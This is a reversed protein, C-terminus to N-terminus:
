PLVEQLLLPDVPHAWPEGEALLGAQELEAELSTVESAMPGSASMLKRRAEASGPLEFNGHRWAMILDRHRELDPPTQSESALRMLLPTVSDLGVLLDHLQRANQKVAEESALLVHGIGEPIDSSSFVPVADERVFFACLPATCIVTDADLNGRHRTLEHPHAPHVTIDAPTLGERKLARHLLFADSSEPEYAVTRGRLSDKGQPPLLVIQEAGHSRLVPSVIRLEPRQRAVSIAENLPLIAADLLNERIARLTEDPSSFMQLRYREQPMQGNERMILIPLYGSYRTMGINLPADLATCQPFLWLCGLWLLWRLRKCINTEQM